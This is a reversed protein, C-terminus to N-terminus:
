CQFEFFRDPYEVLMECLESPVFVLPIEGNFRILGVLASIYLAQYLWDKVHVLQPCFLFFRSMALQTINGKENPHLTEDQAPM